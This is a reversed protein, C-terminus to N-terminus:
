VFTILLQLFLYEKLISCRMGFGAMMCMEWKEMLFDQVANEGTNVNIKKLFDPRKALDVLAKIVSRYIYTKKPIFKPKGQLRVQKM